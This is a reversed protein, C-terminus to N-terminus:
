GAIQGLEDDLRAVLPAITGRDARLADARALLAIDAADRRGGRRRRLREAALITELGSFSADLDDNVLVYDYERWHKIETMANRLRRVIVEQADEARHELRRRLAAADPPLVFVSAVDPRAKAYLQLTGQWDIDFLVDEGAALKQEVMQRPTGYFNGHVEASELLDGRARMAAFEDPKIFFYHIGHVESSRKPRTTVSVSLTIARDREVLLRTLTTKGAGSPSSVVLMLGRRAARASM